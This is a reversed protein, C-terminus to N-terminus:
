GPSDVRCGALQLCVLDWEWVQGGKGVATLFGGGGYEMCHTNFPTKQTGGGKGGGVM